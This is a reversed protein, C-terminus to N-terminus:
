SISVQDSLENTDGPARPFHRGLARGLEQVAHTLAEAPQRARLEGVVAVVLADWYAAGVREHIGRDGIVAIKRDGVGVYLLVGHREATRLMGLRGFVAVARAIPDGPCSQDLHVRIEASTRAEADAIARSVAERDSRGLFRRVWGPTRDM